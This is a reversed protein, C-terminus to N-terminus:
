LTSVKSAMSYLNPYNSQSWSQDIGWGCAARGMWGETTPMLGTPGLSFNTIENYPIPERKFIRGYYWSSSLSLLM